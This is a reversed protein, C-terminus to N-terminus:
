QQALAMVYNHVQHLVAVNVPILYMYCCCRTGAAVGVAATATIYQYFLQTLQKLSSSSCDAAEYPVYKKGVAMM